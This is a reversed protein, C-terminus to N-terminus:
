IQSKIKNFKEKIARAKDETVEHNSFKAENYIDTLTSLGEPNEIHTKIVNELQKATMHSKFIGKSDAKEEFRRYIELVQEKLNKPMFLNKFTKYFLGKKNLYAKKIKERKEDVGDKELGREFYKNKLAIRYIIYLILILIIVKISNNLWAPVEIGQFNEEFLLKHENLEINIKDNKLLSSKWMWLQLLRVIYEMPRKILEALLVLIFSLGSNVAGFIMSFVKVIFSFVKDISVLIISCILSINVLLTNKNKLNYTYARAERLTWILVIVFMAYFKVIQKALERYVFPIFLGALLIVLLAQKGRGKYIEYSIEEKDYTYAIYNVFIIYLSNYLVHRSGNTLFVIVTGIVIPILILIRKKFRENLFQLLFTTGLATLLLRYDAKSFLVVSGIIGYIIYLFLNFSINYLIKIQRFWSM